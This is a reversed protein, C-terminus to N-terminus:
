LCGFAWAFPATIVATGIFVVLIAFLPMVIGTAFFSVYPHYLMIQRIKKM